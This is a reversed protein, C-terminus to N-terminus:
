IIMERYWEVSQKNLKAISTDSQTGLPGSTMVTAVLINAVLVAKPPMKYKITLKM